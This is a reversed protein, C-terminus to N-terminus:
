HTDIEEIVLRLRDLTAQCTERWTGDDVFPTEGPISLLNKLHDVEIRVATELFKSRSELLHAEGYLQNILKEERAAAVQHQAKGVTFIPFLPRDTFVPIFIQTAAVWGVGLVILIFFLYMGIWM